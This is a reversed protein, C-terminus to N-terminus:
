QHGNPILSQQPNHDALLETINVLTRPQKLLPIKIKYSKENWEHSQQATKYIKLIRVSCIYSKSRADRPISYRWLCNQKQFLEVLVAFNIYFQFCQVCLFSDCERNWKPIWTFIPSVKKTIPSNRQRKSSKSSRNTENFCVIFYLCESKVSFELTKIVM